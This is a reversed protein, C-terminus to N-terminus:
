KIEGTRTLHLIQNWTVFEIDSMELKNDEIWLWLLHWYPTKPDKISHKEVTTQMSKM